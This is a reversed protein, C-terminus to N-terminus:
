AAIQRPPVSPRLLRRVVWIMGWIVLGLFVLPLAIILGLWGPGGMTTVDGGISAQPDRHIRGGFVAVDGSVKAAKDLRIGGGFATADGGFQGEDEIVISGGFATVDGDVQGRVHINCGFCTAESVEEHPGININNGMQTREHHEDAFAASSLAACVILCAPLLLTRLHYTM